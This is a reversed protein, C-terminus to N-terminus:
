RWPWPAQAPLVVPRRLLRWQWPAGTLATAARLPVTLSRGAAAIRLSGVRAGRAVLPGRPRARLRFRAVTGQWLAVRVTRTAALPAERGWASRYRAVVQGRRVLVVSRLASQAAAILPPAADLAAQLDPLGMVAGVLLSPATGATDIETAFVFCGGAQDTNGTKIGLIGDTGLLTNVNDITGAVPITAQPEAVIERVVTYAMVAEGLLVLDHPSSVTGPDFGSADVFHTSTLGLTSAEQNMAGVGGALSGYAWTALITAVNNASPLLLAQLAQLETLDEGAAVPVVSQGQALDQEYATVDAQTIPIEPGEDAVTLPDKRLVVLATMMKATSATPMPASIPTQAVVGEGMVGLAAAGQGPWPLTVAQPVSATRAGMEVTPDPLPRVLNVVLVAAVFLVILGLAALGARRLM